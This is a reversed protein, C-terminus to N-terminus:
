LQIIRNFFSGSSVIEHDHLFLSSYQHDQPL